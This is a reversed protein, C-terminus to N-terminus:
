RSHRAIDGRKCRPSRSCTCPHRSYSATSEGRAGREPMLHSFAGETSGRTAVLGPPEYMSETRDCEGPCDTASIAMNAAVTMAQEDDDAGTPKSAPVSVPVFCGGDWSEPESAGVSPLLPSEDSLQVGELKWHSDNVTQQLPPVQTDVPCPSETQMTASAGGGSHRNVPSGHEELLGQQMPAPFQPSPVVLVHRHRV